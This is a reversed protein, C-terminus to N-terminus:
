SKYDQKEMFLFASLQILWFPLALVMQFISQLKVM